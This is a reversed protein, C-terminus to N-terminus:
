GGGCHVPLYSTRGDSLRSPRDNADDDLLARGAVRVSPRLRKSWASPWRSHPAVQGDIAM